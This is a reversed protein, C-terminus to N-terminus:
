FQFSQSEAETAAPAPSFSFGDGNPAASPAVSADEDEETGWFAEIIMMANKYVEENEHMELMELKDVFGIEELGTVIAELEGLNAAANLINKFADLVVIILRSDTCSSLISQLPDLAGARVVYAIQAPSGGCTLNSIAWTAEKQSKADGNALISIMPEVLGHDIVAQIQKPNGATINSIAWVCEKRMNLSDQSLLHKFASLAGSDVVLQTQVDNGTVINGLTRCAPVLIMRDPSHMCIEVLKPIVDLQCVAEIRDNTGDTLYSLSWCCDGV